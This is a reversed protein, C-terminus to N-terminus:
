EQRKPPKPRQGGLALYGQVWADVKPGWSTELTQTLKPTDRALNITETYLRPAIAAISIYILSITVTYVTIISVSRPIRARECFQVLPTLVYAIIMALVFPLLIERVAILLALVLAGSVSLFIVRRRSWGAPSGSIGYPNSTSKPESM